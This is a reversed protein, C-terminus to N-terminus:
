VEFPSASAHLGNDGVNPAAKLGLAQEGYTCTLSEVCACDTAHSRRVQWKLSIENRLSGPAAEVPDTAGLVQDCYTSNVHDIQEPVYVTGQWSFEELEAQGAHNSPAIVCWCVRAICARVPDFSVVFFYISTGKAVFKQRM